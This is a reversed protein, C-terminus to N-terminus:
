PGPSVSLEGAGAGSRPEHQRIRRAGRPVPPKSGARPQVSRRDARFPVCLRRPVPQRGCVLLPQLIQPLGQRPLGAFRQEAAEWNGAAADLDGLLLRAAQDDPEGRALRAAEPRGAFLCALFAQHRIEPDDPDAALAKLYEDAALDVDGQMSAFRGVLFPGASGVATALAPPRPHAETTAGSPEAAACASLLSLAVLASRRISRVHQM